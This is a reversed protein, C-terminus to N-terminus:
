FVEFVELSRTQSLHENTAKIFKKVVEVELGRVSLMPTPVGEGHALSDREVMPSVTCSHPPFTEQMRTGLWFLLSLACSGNRLLTEKDESAAVAAAM